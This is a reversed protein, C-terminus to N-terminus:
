LCMSLYSCWPPYPSCEACALRPRLSLALHLMRGFCPVGLWNASAKAFAWARKLMGILAHSTQELAGRGEGMEGKRGIMRGSSRLTPSVIARCASCCVALLLAKAFRCVRLQLVSGSERQLRWPLATGLNAGM